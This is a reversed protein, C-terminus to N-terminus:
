LVVRRVGDVLRPVNFNILLALRHGTLRLYGLVQSFHVTAVQEVAKLEVVVCGDILFDLRGTGVRQGRYELNFRVQKEFQIQRFELEIRLAEEYVRESHGPGLRRHVEIAAGIVARAAAEVRDDLKPRGGEDM